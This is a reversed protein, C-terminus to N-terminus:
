ALLPVGADDDNKQYTWNSFVSDLPKRQQVVSNIVESHVIVNSSGCCWVITSATFTVHKGETTFFVKLYTIKETSM